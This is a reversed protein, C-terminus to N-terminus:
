SNTVELGRDVSTKTPTRYKTTQKTKPIIPADIVLYLLPLTNEPKMNPNRSQATPSNSANNM